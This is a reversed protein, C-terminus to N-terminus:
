SIPVYIKDIMEQYELHPDSNITIGGGSKFYLQDNVKEIFRILVASKVIGDIYIGFVGTYFERDYDEVQKIIEVTKHKPAGTVSGAPLIKSILTGIISRYDDDLEGCIESSIQILEYDKTKIYSPFRFQTVNVNNAIISLDNRLLDVITNHEAKEKEDNMIVSLANEIENSITGKMPYTSIKGAEINIFCEPSFCVFKDKIYLKYKANSFHYIELLDCNFEIKTRCTLNSLYSNGYKLHSLIKNFKDLYNEYEEPFKKLEIEKNYQYEARYNTIGDLDFLIEDSDINDLREVIGCSADFNIIFLFPLNHSGYENMKEIYDKSIM